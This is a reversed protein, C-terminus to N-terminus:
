RTRDGLGLAVLLPAALRQRLSKSCLLACGIPQEALATAALLGANLWVAVAIGFRAIAQGSLLTGCVFAASGAGRREGRTEPFALDAGRVAGAVRDSRASRRLPRRLRAGGLGPRRSRRDARLVQSDINWCIESIGSWCDPRSRLIRRSGGDAGRSIQYHCYNRDPIFLNRAQGKVPNNEPRPRLTPCADRRSRDRHFRPSTREWIGAAPHRDPREGPLRNEQM